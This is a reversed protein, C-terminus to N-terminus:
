GTARLTLDVAGLVSAKRGLSSICIEPLYPTVGHIREEIRKLLLGLSGAVGGSFVIMELDLLANINVIGLSLHDATETLVENAWAEGREAAEFVQRADVTAGPQGSLTKKRAAANQIGTGSVRQEFAGFLDYRQGLDATNSCFYGIEGAAGHFGRYLIGDLILAGGVGTGLAILMLYRKGRGAGFRYEGLAALNVDNEVLCPLLFREELRDKLRFGQWGLSPAWEVVGPASQVIGPAGVVIGRLPARDTVDQQLRTILSSLLNFSEEGTSKHHELSTEQMIKGGMGVTAAYIKTGGLDVAIVCGPNKDMTIQSPEIEPQNM